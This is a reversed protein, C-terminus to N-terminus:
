NLKLKQQRMGPPRDSHNVQSFTTEGARPTVRGASALCSGERTTKGEEHLRNISNNLCLLPFIARGYYGDPIPNDRTDSDMYVPGLM